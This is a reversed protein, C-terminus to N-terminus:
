IGSSHSDNPPHQPATLLTGYFPSRELQPLDIDQHRLLGGRQETGSCLIDVVSCAHAASAVALAGAQSGDERRRSPIIQHFSREHILNGTDSTRKFRATVFIIVQDTEIIPLGNMLLNELMDTRHALGLDELLFRIYDLHGPFRLTKFVLTKLRGELQDALEDLSGATAFAELAQGNITLQEYQSLPSLATKKGSVIAQCPNLYEKVLGGINWLNGYGLRNTKQVPLVGVYARIEADEGSERAMSAVVSSIYGPAIGCRPVFPSQAGEAIAAVGAATIYDETLDVYPCGVERAVQALPAAIFDPGAEVVAAAGNLLREMAETDTACGEVTEHGLAQAKRVQNEVPDVLTVAYRPDKSFMQAITLGVRGAGAIVVRNRKEEIGM